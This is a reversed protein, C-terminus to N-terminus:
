EDCNALQLAVKEIKEILLQEIEHGAGPAEEHQAQVNEHQSSRNCGQDV